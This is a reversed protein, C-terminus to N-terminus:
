DNWNYVLTYSDYEPEDPIGEQRFLQRILNQDRPSVPMEKRYFRYYTNRGFHNLMRKKIRQAKQLPVNALLNKVGWAVQIKETSSFYPCTELNGPLRRPNIVSISYPEATCHEGALYHLCHGAKPCATQFCHAFMYPVSQYDFTEEM